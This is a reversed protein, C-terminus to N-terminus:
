DHKVYNNLQFLKETDKDNFDIYVGVFLDLGEFIISRIMCYHDKPNFDKATQDIKIIKVM